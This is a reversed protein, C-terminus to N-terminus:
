NNKFDPKRIFFPKELIWGFNQMLYNLVPKEFEPTAKFDFFLGHGPDTVDNYHIALQKVNQEFTNSDPLTLEHEVKGFKNFFNDLDKTM